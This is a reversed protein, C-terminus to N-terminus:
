RARRQWDPLETTWPLLEFAGSVPDVSYVQHKSGVVMLIRSGDPSWSKSIATDTADTFHSGLDRAQRSGDAPMTAIWGQAGIVGNSTIWRLLVISNGDPSFVPWNEEVIPDDPAPVAHDNTGDANVLHVRFREVIEGDPMPIPDIGNYAITKGDPSFVPGSRTYQVGYSTQEPEVITRRDSGDLKMTYLGVKQSGLEYARILMRDGNPPAFAVDLPVIGELAIVSTEGALTVISLQPSGGVDYIFAVSRSDPAWAGTANGTPPVIGVAVPSSGDANAIFWHDGDPETTAYTLRTGDPSFTAAIQEGQGGVLLRGTATLSERVYLDGNSQYVLAGNAAPGFPSPLQRHSGFYV